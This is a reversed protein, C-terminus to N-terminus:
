IEKIAYISNENINLTNLAIKIAEQKNDTTISIVGFTQNIRYKVYYRGM